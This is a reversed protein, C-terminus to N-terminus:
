GRTGSWEVQVWLKTADSGFGDARYDALKVQGDVGKGLPFGFSANWESGYHNGGADARYDHWAIAWNYRGEHVGSRFRGGASLYRDELGGPPTTTLKDAWGNFAHLTALPTQLAHSGDGGLHEWGIRYTTPGLALSPEVLWYTHTFDRANAAHDLQRAVELTAGWRRAANATDAHWRLGYTATSAAAVDRDDHLYAYGTWQQRATSRTATLFHSRLDRERALPDRADDGSVRHVRVLGDYRLTWAQAPRWELAIADFTQENQRWGSAGLWRQNDLTLRQRGLRLLVEEGQRAVWLQNLELGTPDIVSPFATRGNAGSNYDDVLAGTAEAELLASWGHAFTGRLGARLRVTAADAPEAFAADDVHEWRSRLNWEFTLADDAAIAPLPAAAASLAIALLCPRPSMTPFRLLRAGAEASGTACAKIRM